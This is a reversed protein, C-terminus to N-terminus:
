ILARETDHDFVHMRNMDFVIELPKGPTAATRPDFRGVFEARGQEM